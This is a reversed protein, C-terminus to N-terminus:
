PALNTSHRDAAGRCAALRGLFGTPFPTAKAHEGLGESVFGVSTKSRTVGHGRQQDTLKFVLHFGDNSFGNTVVGIKVGEADVAESECQAVMDGVVFSTDVTLLEGGYSLWRSL